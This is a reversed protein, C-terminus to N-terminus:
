RAHQEDYKRIKEIVQDTAENYIEQIMPDHFNYIRSSFPKNLNNVFRNEFDELDKGYIHFSDAQWNLRAMEVPKGVRKEIADAIHNRIFMTLGFVNMFFASWADNSRIRINSNLYYVNDKELMRFWMSQLCNHAVIDNALIAHHKHQVEFDYVTKIGTHRKYIVPLLISNNKTIYKANVWRFSPRHDEKLWRTHFNDVKRRLERNAVGAHKLSKANEIQQTRELLIRNSRELQAKLIMYKAQKRSDLRFDFNEVAAAISEQSHLDIRWLSGKSTYIHHPIHLKELMSSIFYIAEEWCMGLAIHPAYKNSGGGWYISGEASFIGTLFDKIEQESLDNIDINIPGSKKGVPCGKAYLKNYLKVDTVSIARSTGACLNSEVYKNYEVIKNASNSTLFDYVWGVDAEPHMSFHISYECSHNCFRKSLWGDGHMFGVIMMDSIRNAVPQHIHVFDQSSLSGAEVWGRQTRLLQGESVEIKTAGFDLLVCRDLKMFSNSVKNTCFAHAQLDYAYVDDGNQLDEINIYGQPTYIKTGAVFCPPDYANFDQWPHWTIMQSQRTYPEAVLKDVVEDVQNIIRNDILGTAKARGYETKLYYSGWQAFRQHYTYEWRKDEPDNLNKVWHDKAGELEMVYERLDAIGGPFAKHIMPDSMPSDITINATADKSPPNGRDYQTEIECGFVYLDRLAAEYARAITDRHINIVPINM